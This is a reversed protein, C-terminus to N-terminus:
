MTGLRMVITLCFLVVALYIWIPRKSFPADDDSYALPRPLIVFKLKSWDWLLLYINGLLMLTTVCLIATSQFSLTFIFITAMIPFFVVAGLTSLVQSMLLAGAMFQGWGIFHWYFGSQFMAELLHPLSNIPAHEGSTPTFRRGKIKFISAYM